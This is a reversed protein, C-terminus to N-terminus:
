CVILMEDHVKWRMTYRRLNEDAEAREVDRVITKCLPDRDRHKSADIGGEFSPFPNKASFKTFFSSNWASLHNKSLFLRWIKIPLPINCWQKMSSVGRTKVPVSHLRLDCRGQRKCSELAFELSAYESGKKRSFLRTIFYRKTTLVLESLVGRIRLYNNISQNIPSTIKLRHHSRHWQFPNKTVLEAMETQQNLHTYAISSHVGGYFTFTITSFSKLKFLLAVSLWRENSFLLFSIVSLVPQRARM